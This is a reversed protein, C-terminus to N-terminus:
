ETLSNWRCPLTRWFWATPLYFEALRRTREGWIKWVGFALFLFFAGFAVCSISLGHPIDMALRWQFLSAVFPIGCALVADLPETFSFEERRVSGLTILIYIFVFGILFPETTSFMAADYDTIGWYGMVVFTCFAGSFNLWRWLRYRCIALIGLNLLTYCSFLAIYNGSGDSLLIPAAFGGVFGFLALIQANQVIALAVAPIILATMIVLAAAPPLMDTLRAAAFASLYLVGIGGGQMILAYMRRLLRLRLGLGVMAMGTVTAVVIRMEISFVSLQALFAFGILLMIVGGAVWLNGGRIFDVLLRFYKEVEAGFVPASEFAARETPAERDERGATKEPLSCEVPSFGADDALADQESGSEFFSEAFAQAEPAPPAEVADFVEAVSDSVAEERTKEADARITAAISEATIVGMAPFRINGSSDRVSAMAAAPTKAVDDEGASLPADAREEPPPEGCVRETLKRVATELRQLQDTLERFDKKRGLSGLWYFFFAVIGLGIVGM